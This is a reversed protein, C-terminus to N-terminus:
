IITYPNTYELGNEYFFVFDNKYFHYVKKVLEEDYFYKIDVNCDYYVSMDLDYVYERFDLTGRCREHGHKASILEEPIKKDFLSEIYTYDINTIDYFKVIKSALVKVNKNWVGHSQPEFHHRDIMRWRCILLEDVFDRFTIIDRNWLYRFEGNIRYKDLFGSVIRKYPNRCFLITTYNEIDSPLIMFDNKTHIIPKVNNTLLYWFIVKVHSCGCKPSWGFIIKNNYDILFHMELHKYSFIFFLFGFLACNYVM